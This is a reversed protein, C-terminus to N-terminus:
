HFKAKLAAWSVRATFVPAAGYVIIRGGASDSVYLQGFKDAAVDLPVGLTQGSGAYSWAGLFTGSLSLMQIRSNSHDTVFLNHSPDICLGAPGNFQQPGGGPEGWKALLSGSPTLQFVCDLGPNEDSVYITGDQDVTIGIPEKVIGVGLAGLYTGDAGFKHISGREPDTVLLNGEPTVAVGRPKGMQGAGIVLNLTGTKTYANVSQGAVVYVTAPESIAIGIPSPVFEAPIAPVDWANLPAGFSSFVIVRHNTQDTVYINGDASTAVCYPSNVGGSLQPIQWELLYPPTAQARVLAPQTAICAVVLLWACPTRSAPSLM